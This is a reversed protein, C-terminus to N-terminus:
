EAALDLDAQAPSPKTHKRRAKVYARVARDFHDTARCWLDTVTASEPGEAAVVAALREAAAAELAPTSGSAPHACCDLRIALSAFAGFAKEVANPWSWWKELM